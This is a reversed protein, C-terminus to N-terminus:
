EDDAEEFPKAPRPIMVDVCFFSAREYFDVMGRYKDTIARIIQVGFGHQSVDEKSTLLHPNSALVSASVANRVLLSLYGGKPVIEIQLDRQEEPEKMLAEIANNLMNGLLSHLDIDRMPIDTEEIRVKTAIGLAAAQSLHTNLIFNLTENDTQVINSFSRVRGQFQDIFAEAEELQGSAIQQKLLTLYNRMEHRLSRIQDYIRKEDDMNRQEYQLYHRLMDNEMVLDGENGISSLLYYIVLNVVIVAIMALVMLILAQRDLLHRSLLEALVGSFILTILPIAVSLLLHVKRYPHRYSGRFRLFVRTSYFVILILLLQYLVHQWGTENWVQHLSINVSVASLFIGSFVHSIMLVFPFFLCSLIKGIQTGELFYIAYLIMVATRILLRAQISEMRVDTIEVILFSFLLVLFFAARNLRRTWDIGNYRTVFEIFLFCEALLLIHSIVTWVM